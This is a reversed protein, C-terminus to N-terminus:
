LCPNALDATLKPLEKTMWAVMEDRTTLHNPMPIFGSDPGYVKICDTGGSIPDVATHEGRRPTPFGHSIWMLYLGIAGSLGALAILFVLETGTGM